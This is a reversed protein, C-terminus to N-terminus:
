GNALTLSRSRWRRRSEQTTKLIPRLRRGSAAKPQRKQAAKAATEAAEAVKLDAAAKVSAAEAVMEAAM